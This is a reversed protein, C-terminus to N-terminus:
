LQGPGTGRGDELDGRVGASRFRLSTAVTVGTQQPCVPKDSNLSASALPLVREDFEADEECTALREVAVRRVEWSENEWGKLAVSARVGAALKPLADAIATHERWEGEVESLAFWSLATIAVLTTSACTKVSSKRDELLKEAVVKVIGDSHFRVL